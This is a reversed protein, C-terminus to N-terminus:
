IRKKLVDRIHAAVHPPLVQVLSKRDNDESFESWFRLLRNIKRYLTPEDVKAAAVEHEPITLYDGLCIWDHKLIGMLIQTLEVLEPGVPPGVPM